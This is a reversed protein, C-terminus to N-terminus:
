RISRASCMGHFRSSEFVDEGDSDNEDGTKSAAHQQFPYQQAEPDNAAIFGSCQALEPLTYTIVMMQDKLLTPIEGACIGFRRQWTDLAMRSLPCYGSHLRRSQRAYLEARGTDTDWATQDLAALVNWWRHSNQVLYNHLSWPSFTTRIPLLFSDLLHQNIIRLTVGTLAEHMNGRFCVM